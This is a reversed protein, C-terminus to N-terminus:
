YALFIYSPNSSTTRVEELCINKPAFNYTSGVLIYKQSPFIKNDLDINEILLLPLFTEETVIPYSPTLM